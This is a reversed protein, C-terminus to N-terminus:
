FSIMIGVAEQVLRLTQRLIEIGELVGPPLVPQRLMEHDRPTLKLFGACQVLQRRLGQAELLGIYVNDEEMPLDTFAGRLVTRRRLRDAKRVIRMLADIIQRESMHVLVLLSAEVPTSAPAIRATELSTAEILTRLMAENQEIDIHRRMLDPPLEHIDTLPM